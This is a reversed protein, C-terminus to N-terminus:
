NIVRSPDRIRSNEPRIRTAIRVDARAIRRDVVSSQAMMGSDKTTSKVESSSRPGLAVISTAVAPVTVCLSVSECRECGDRRISKFAAVTM